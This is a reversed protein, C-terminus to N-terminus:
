ACRGTTLRLGEGSPPVEARGSTLLVEVIESLKADSFGTAEEVALAHADTHIECGLAEVAAIFRETEAETPQAALPAALAALGAALVYQKM